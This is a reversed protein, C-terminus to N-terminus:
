IVEQNSSLIALYASNLRHVTKKITYERRAYQIAKERTTQQDMNGEYIEEIIKRLQEKNGLSYLFGYKGDVLLEPNAGTNSAIVILGSLLFEITVLGFGEAKSCVVGVDYTPLISPLDNSIGKFTVFDGIGNAEIYRKITDGYGDNTSDGYLDVVIHYDSHLLPEVAEILELQGKGEYIAGCMVIRLEKHKEKLGPKYLNVDIGDYITSIKDASLGYEVWDNRVANSIAIFKASYREMFRTQNWYIPELKFHARSFERLYTVNPIKYKKSLLMGFLDRNINTHIIDIKDMIGLKKIKYFALINSLTVTIFKYAWKLLRKIRNKTPYYVCYRYPLVYNEINNENCWENLPGYRQTIVVPVFNEETKQMEHLLSKSIHYTGYKQDAGAVFLIRLKDVGSNLKFFKLKEVM